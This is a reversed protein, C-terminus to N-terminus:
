RDGRVWLVYGGSSAVRSWEPNVQIREVLRDHSLPRLIVCQTREPLPAEGARIDIYELLHDRGYFDARGDIWVTVDPRTLLIPGAVRDESWLLCGSPLQAALRAEPPRGGNPIAAAAAVSIALAVVVLVDTWFVGSTYRAVRASSWRTGPRAQVARFRDVSASLAAAALPMLVLAGFALLRLTGLGALIAPVGLAILPLALRVRPDFRGASRFVRYAWIVGTVAAAIVSAAVFLWVLGGAQAVATPLSMWETILERCIEGVSRSRELTTAVGYPSFWCGLFLGATGAVTLGARSRWGLGPSAWWAIAWMVAIAASLLMFSLHLWNGVFSITFGAIAAVSVTTMGRLRRAIGGWWSAFLVAGLILLHVVVTARASLAPASALLLLLCAVFTPLARAGAHRAVLMSVAILSTIAVWALVFFGWFGIADWSLGLVVNWAPSNPYWVGEASWSWTDPRPIPFGDLSELGARASWFPDRETPLAARIAAMAALTAFGLWWRFRETAMVQRLVVVRRTQTLTDPM